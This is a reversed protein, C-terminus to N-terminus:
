TGRYYPREVDNLIVGAIEAGCRTLRDIARRITRVNATRHRVVLVAADCQQALLEADASALVAPGDILVVSFHSSVEALAEQMRNSALLDPVVAQRIQPICAVGPMTTPYQVDAVSEANFSLYDGLGMTSEDADPILRRVQQLEHGTRIQGDLLLVHEDQRGLCEALHTAVLSRGEAPTASAILIRAGPGPVKNRLRRAIIRFLERAGDDADAAIALESATLRPVEGLIPLDLKLAAESSTRIRSDMLELGVLVILSTMAVGVTVMMFILRRNSKTPLAPAIADSVVTFDVGRSEHAMRAAALSEELMRRDAQRVEVDRTLIIFKRQLAPLADLRAQAKDRAGQLYKVKEGVAVQELELELARLLMEQLLKGAPPPAGDAPMVVEDLMSIEAKWEEIQETDVTLAQQEEFAAQARDVELQTAIGKELLGATRHYEDELRALKVMAARHIKDDHIADRLRRFRINIDGLDELTARQAAEARARETMGKIIRDFNALQLEIRREEIQAQVYIAENAILEELFWQAEKDLDVVKNEDTFKALAADVEALEGLVVTLRNEFGEIQAAWSARYQMRQNDLFVDRVTRALDAAGDPSHWSCRIIMLNTHDQVHVSCAAGIAELSAPLHLLERVRALNARLKVLHMQTILNDQREGPQLDTESPVYLLVTEANYVREGMLLGVSVGAVLSAVICLAFIKWRRLLGKGIASMDFPLGQSDESEQQQETM